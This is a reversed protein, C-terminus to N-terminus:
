SVRSKAATHENRSATATTDCNAVTSAARVTSIACLPCLCRRRKLNLVWGLAAARSRCDKWSRGLVCCRAQCAHADCRLAIFPTIGLRNIRM